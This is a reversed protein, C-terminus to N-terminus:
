KNIYDLVRKIIVAMEARSIPNDPKFTNDEYGKIIGLDSIEEIYEVAWHNVTDTFKAMDIEELGLYKLIGNSIAQAFETQKNKLLLADNTNDIFALEVLISPMNTKRLVWLDPRLKVGRDKLPLTNIINKQVNQALKEAKSERSYVLTETGTGGGANAHISVFLDAKAKNALETRTSLEVKTDTTRTYIVDVGSSKLINGVKQTVSLAIDSERLGNGVAGPDSGGHGADLIIKTM